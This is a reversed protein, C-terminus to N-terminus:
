KAPEPKSPEPLFTNHIFTLTALATTADGGNIVHAASLGGVVATAAALAKDGHALFWNWYKM